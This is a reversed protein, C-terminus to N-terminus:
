VYLYIIKCLPCGTPGRVEEVAEEIGVAAEVDAPMIVKADVPLAAEAALLEVDAPAAPMM